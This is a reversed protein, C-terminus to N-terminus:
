SKELDKILSIYYYEFFNNIEKITEKYEIQKIKCNDYVFILEERTVKMTLQKRSSLFLEKLAYIIIKLKEINEETFIKIIEETYNFEIKELLKRFEIEEDQTFKEPNQKEKKIIYNFFRDIRININNDKAKKSIPYLCNQNYPYQKNQKYTNPIFERDNNNIYIRREIIQKKDDKIIKVKVFGLTELHSIWRSITGPIVHYLGAFYKNNAFCYGEKGTLATIEGYLLREPYKLEECYRVESPIIAYYSPRNQENV